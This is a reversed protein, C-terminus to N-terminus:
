AAEPVDSAALVLAVKMTVGRVGFNPASVIGGFFNPLRGKLRDGGVDAEDPCHLKSLSLEATAETLLPITLILPTPIETIVALCDAIPLKANVLLCAIKLTVWPEGETDNNTMGTCNKPFPLKVRVGGVEVEVPAHLKELLIDM